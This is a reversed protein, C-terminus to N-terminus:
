ETRDHLLRVLRAVPTPPGKALFASLSGTEFNAPLVAVPVLVGQLHLERHSLIQKTRAKATIEGYSSLEEKVEFEPLDPLNAYLGNDPRRRWAIQGHPDILLVRGEHRKPLHRAKVPLVPLEAWRLHGACAERLPCADCTPQRPKCVRAGLEMLAQNHDGPSQQNLFADALAQIRRKGAAKRVPEDVLRLRALVREVNGDVVAARLGFAISGVAAATYDGVGPLERLAALDGPVQGGHKSTIASAAAFLARARRYYGLGAWASIVAEEGAVAM